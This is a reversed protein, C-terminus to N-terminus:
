FKVWGNIFSLPLENYNWVGNDYNENFVSNKNEEKQEDLWNVVSQMVEAKCDTTEFRGISCDSVDCDFWFFIYRGINDEYETEIEALVIIDDGFCNLDTHYMEKEGSIIANILDRKTGSWKEWELYKGKPFVGVNRDTIDKNPATYRDLVFCSIPKVYNIFGNLFTSSVFTWSTGYPIPNHVIEKPFEVDDTFYDWIKKNKM